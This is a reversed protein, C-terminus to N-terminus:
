RAINVVKVQTFEELGYEGLETGVGSWKCGGFPIAPSLERHKNVWVTGAEIRAAVRAAAASDSGWVSSGLGYPSANARAVAEDVTAYKMVPLVPGFQEEDVLRSGEAIDRVVTPRIFYGARELAYGGAIIRGQDKAEAILTKLKEYQAKNQVPGYQTGPESGDGVVAEDALRALEICVEDYMSEHVYVRKIAICVQGSNAFAQKFVKAAVARADADPLIIAADNGGLELTVRKLTPAAGAMVRKGTETSGTFSIKRVDPHATLAAGLDNADTIINLVGPPLLDAVLAGFRLTTLPTTAAPKVVVTNGTVLAPPLKFALLVMPFNWPVIAGVVGLPVHHVEVRRSKSDELVQVDLNAQAYHRFYGVSGIIEGRADAFPKGQESTLLRALEDAHAELRDAIANLAARRQEIPTDRWGPFARKAAAVAADLQAASARACRALVTETAPNIVDMELDGPVLRGDILLGYDSM